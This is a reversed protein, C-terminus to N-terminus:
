PPFPGVLTHAFDRFTTRIDSAPVAFKSRRPFGPGDHFRRPNSQSPANPKWYIQKTTCHHKMEPSQVELTEPLVVEAYASRFEVPFGIALIRVTSTRGPGPGSVRGGARFYSQM